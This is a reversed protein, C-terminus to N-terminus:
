KYDHASAHLGAVGHLSMLFSFTNMKSRYHKQLGKAATIPINWAYVCFMRGVQNLHVDRFVLDEPELTLLGGNESM